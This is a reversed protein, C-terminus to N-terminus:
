PGPSSNKQISSDLKAYASNLESLKARVDLVAKQAGEARGTVATAKTILDDVVPCKPPTANREPFLASAIGLGTKAGQITAAGGSMIGGVAAGIGIAVLSKLGQFFNARSQEFAWQRECADQNVQISQAIFYLQSYIGAFTAEANALNEAEALFEASLTNTYNSVPESISLNYSCNETPNTSREKMVCPNIVYYFSGSKAALDEFKDRAVYSGVLRCGAADFAANQWAWRLQSLRTPLTPALTKIDDGAPTRMVFSKPCRAIMVFDANQRAFALVPVKLRSEESAAAVVPATTISASAQEPAIPPLKQAGADGSNGPAVSPGASPAAVPRVSSPLHPEESSCASVIMATCLLGATMRAWSQQHKPIKSNVSHSM